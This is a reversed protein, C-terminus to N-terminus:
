LGLRKVEAIKKSLDNTAVVPYMTNVCEVVIAQIANKFTDSKAIMNDARKYMKAPVNKSKLATKMAKRILTKMKLNTRVLKLRSAKFSLKKKTRRKRKPKEKKEKKEIRLNLKPNKPKRETEAM